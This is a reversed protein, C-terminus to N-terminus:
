VSGQSEIAARDNLVRVFHDTGNSEGLDNVSRKSANYNPPRLGEQLRSAAAPVEANKVVIASKGGSEFHCGNKAGKTETLLRHKWHGANRSTLM